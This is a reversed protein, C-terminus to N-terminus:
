RAALATLEAGSLTTGFAPGGPELLTGASMPGIVVPDLGLSALFASVTRGADASDTM